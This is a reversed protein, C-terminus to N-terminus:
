HEPEAGHAAADGGAVPGHTVQALYNVNPLTKLGYHGHEPEGGLMLYARNDQRSRSIRSTPDLLNGFVLADSPCVQQCAVRVTGDKVTEGALKAAHKAERLRQVCFSCKEMIGRIRVTVDPNMARLSRTHEKQGVEFAFTFWNFRRVKYPCANGCYRTGVCRNYTMANIGEPDHTTAYVPCVGECPAHNCQQCMVPQFTVQPNAVPGSFYRDLRIWHMERGKRIQERGVQPVNNEQGCAVMCAGCGTCKSLDVSLGWRYEAPKLAPYLDPVEDLKKKQNRQKNADAVSIKKVIDLRNAIDNHKQMAALWHTAGTKTIKAAVGSTNPLGTVSDAGASIATLPDVGYGASIMSVNSARGNGRPVVIASPHLGPLPYVAAEFSGKETEVKVVDNRKVGLQVCTAPNLAVWTDWTVTTLGDGIEQLIPRTAGRGDHLRVDLPTLLVMGDKIPPSVKVTAALDALPTPSFTELQGVVGRRLVVKQFLDYPVNAGLDKQLPVWKKKLYSEYDKYGMPKQLNAAVWMLIDETQWSGSIPRVVPQRTSWYGAVPQEDGWSELYHHAPLRIHASDDTETPFSQVSILNKVGAIKEKWGWAPPLNFAPNSDIVILTEINPLDKAFRELDGPRVPSKVWGRDIFLRKGYVEALENLAITVLQLATGNADFTASAGAFFIVRSAFIEKALADFYDKGIGTVAELEALASSQAEVLAKARAKVPEPARSGGDEVMAQLLGLAVLIESGPKIVKRDDAKSGTLTLSAEFQVLKSSTGTQAFDRTQAFGKALFVSSTGIDLFDSGVSVILNVDRFDVRPLCEHGFAIKHAAATYAYISNPEYTYLQTAEGGIKTLFEEFFAHRNGTSGNALIAVRKPDSIGKAISSLSEDWTVDKWSSGEKVQPSKLREPHYLAQLGSQGLTCMAGQSMPHRPNGELKVPRGERTKVLIGCGVSCDGCTTAYYVAEGPFQDTPQQVYPVATEVPRRVCAASALLTGASFVKLLDRRGINEDMTRASNVGDIASKSPGETELEPMKEEVAMYFPGPVFQKAPAEFPQDVPAFVEIGRELTARGDGGQQNKNNEGQTTM